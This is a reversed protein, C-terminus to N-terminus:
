STHLLSHEFKGLQEAEMIFKEALIDWSSVVGECPDVDGEMDIDERNWFDDTRPNITNAAEDADGKHTDESNKDDTEDTTRHAQDHLDLLIDDTFRHSLVTREDGPLHLLDLDAPPDLLLM